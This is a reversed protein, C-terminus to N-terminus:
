KFILLGVFYMTNVELYINKIQDRGGFDRGIKEERESSKM